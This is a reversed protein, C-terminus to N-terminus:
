NSFTSWTGFCARGLTLAAYGPRSSFSLAAARSSPVGGSTHSALSLRAGGGSPSLGKIAPKCLSWLEPSVCEPVPVPASSGLLM